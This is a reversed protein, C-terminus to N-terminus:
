AGQVNQEDGGGPDTVGNQRGTEEVMDDPGMGPRPHGDGAPRRRRGQEFAHGPEGPDDDHALAAGREVPEVQPALHRGLRPGQRDVHAGGGHGPEHDGPLAPHELRPGALANMAHDLDCAHEIERRRRRGLQPGRRAVLDGGGAQNGGAGHQREPRGGVPAALGPPRLAEGREDPPEGPGAAHQGARRDGHEARRALARRRQRHEVDNGGHPPDVQDAAGIQQRRVGAELAARQIDAVIRAQHMDRRGGADRREAQEPRRAVLVVRRPAVAAGHHAGRGSIVIQERGTVIVAGRVRQHVAQRDVGHDRRGLVQPAAM